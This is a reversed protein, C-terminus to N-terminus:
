RSDSIRYNVSPDPGKRARSRATQDRLLARHTAAGIHAEMPGVRLRKTPTATQTPGRGVAGSPLAM